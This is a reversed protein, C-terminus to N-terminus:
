PGGGSWGYFCLAEPNADEDDLRGLDEYVILYIREPLRYETRAEIVMRKTPKETGFLARLQKRGVPFIIGSYHATFAEPVAPYDLSRLKGSYGLAYHYQPWEGTPASEVQPLAFLCGQERPIEEPEPSAVHAIDLISHTRYTTRRVLEALSAPVEDEAYWFPAGKDYRREAFVQKRLRQLAEEIDDQYPVFYIWESNGM